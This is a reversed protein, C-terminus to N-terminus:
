KLNFSSLGLKQWDADFMAIGRDTLPHKIAQELVIPPLTVVDVGTQAIRQWAVVSRISAAIIESEWEYTQKLAVVEETIDIGDIGIEDWRGVFPSIFMVGLKAAILAQMPTFVLTVNIAIEREVAAKIVSLYEQAFPIKVVVNEAFQSIEIAQALMAEPKKEVVEISVPGDVMACIDKLVTGINGGEKSLLTPNTTIGDVIGCEVWQKIHERNATDLFIKM